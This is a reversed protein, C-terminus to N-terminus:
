LIEFDLCLSLGSLSIKNKEKEGDVSFGCFIVYITWELGFYWRGKPICPKSSLYVTVESVLCSVTTLKFPCSQAYPLILARLWNWGSNWNSGSLLHLNAPVTRWDLRCCLSSCSVRGHFIHSRYLPEFWKQPLSTCMGWVTSFMSCYTFTHTHVSLPSLRPCESPNRRWWLPQCM